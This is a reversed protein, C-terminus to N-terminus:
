SIDFVKLCDDLERRGIPRPSFLDAPNTETRDPEPSRGPDLTDIRDPLRM